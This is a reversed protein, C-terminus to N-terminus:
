REISVQPGSTLPEPPSERPRDLHEDHRDAGSTRRWWTTGLHRPWLPASNLALVELFQRECTGYAM